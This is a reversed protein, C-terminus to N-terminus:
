GYRARLRYLMGSIRSIPNNSSCIFSILCELPDQRLLRLGPLQAAAEGFLQPDQRAWEAYLQALSSDSQHSSSNKHGAVLDQAPLRFYSHMLSEMRHLPTNGPHIEAWLTDTPTERIKIVHQRLVGLWELHGDKNEPSCARWNLVQGCQLTVS